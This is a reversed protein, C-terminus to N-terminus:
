NMTRRRSTLPETSNQTDGASFMGKGEEVRAHTIAVADDYNAVEVGRFVDYSMAEPGVYAMFVVDPRGGNFKGYKEYDWGDPRYEDVFRIRAVAEFGFKQYM